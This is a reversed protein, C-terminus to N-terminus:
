EGTRALVVAFTKLVILIDNKLSLTRAYANDYVVRNVFESSGRAKIQWLGTLGPKLQYYASGGAERYFANQDPTFPRPGIISMDGYLVNYVQPLEDISTERMFKGFRIIRPDNKLKQNKHWEAAIEPNEACLSKLREEADVHMTRLKYCKFLKGDKGVRLQSYFGPGGNMRVFFYAIGVVLSVPIIACLVIALDLIRKGIVAYPKNEARDRNDSTVLDIGFYDTTSFHKM